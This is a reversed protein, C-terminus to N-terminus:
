RKSLRPKNDRRAELAYITEYARGDRVHYLDSSVGGLQDLWDRDFMPRLELSAQKLVRPELGLSSMLDLSKPFDTVSNHVMLLRGGPSLRDAAAEIVADIMARGDPGCYYPNFAEAADPLPLQAPNSIVVDVTEGPPLPIITDGVALEVLRDRVGNLAANALAADVAAPNTDVVYVRSAGQLCAVIALLGSGTGIDIASMGDLDPISEALLLTYATPPGVTERPEITVPHRGADIAHAQNM